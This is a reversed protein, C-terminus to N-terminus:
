LAFVMKSTTNNVNIKRLNKLGFWPQSSVLMKFSGDWGQHIKIGLIFCILIFLSYKNFTPTLYCWSTMMNVDNTGLKIFTTTYQQLTGPNCFLTVGTRVLHVLMCEIQGITSFHVHEISSNWLMIQSIFIQIVYKFLKLVRGCNNRFHCHSCWHTSM